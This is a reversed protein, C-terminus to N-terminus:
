NTFMGGNVHITSGTIYKSGSGALFAVAEAVDTPEGFKKMPIKAMIAEKAQDPLAETMDTRIFGPAVCNCLIGFQALDQAISKTFATIAGKTAAYMSQGANGTYGVVSAINIIRGDKARIMGKAALKSLLFVPKLNTNILTEFDEPKAFPLIQDISIGANNVLTNIPGLESVVNKILEQCATPDSLDAKFPRSGPIREALARAKEDSGRYHIAVTFGHQGLAEACAAGIGRSAGTVLAVKNNAGASEKMGVKGRSKISPQFFLMM